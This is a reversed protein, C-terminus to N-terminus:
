ADAGGGVDFEDGPDPVVSAQEVVDAEAAEGELDPRATRPRYEEPAPPRAGTTGVPAEDSEQVLSVPEETPEVLGADRWTDPGPVTSM